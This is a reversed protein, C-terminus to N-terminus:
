AKQTAQAPMTVTRSPRLKENHHSGRATEDAHYAKAARGSSGTVTRRNETADLHQQNSGFTPHAPRAPRTAQQWSNTGIAAAAAAAAAQRDNGINGAVLQRQSIFPTNTTQKNTKNTM